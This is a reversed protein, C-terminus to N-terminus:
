CTFSRLFGIGVRFGWDGGWDGTGGLNSGLPYKSMSLCIDLMHICQPTRKQGTEPTRTQRENKVQEPTRKQGRPGQPYPKRQKWFVAAEIVSSKLHNSDEFGRPIEADKQSLRYVCGVM